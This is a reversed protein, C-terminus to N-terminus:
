EVTVTVTFPEQRGDNFIVLLTYTTTTQPCVQRADSARAPQGEFLITQANAVDWAIQACEGASITSPEAHFNAASPTPTPPIATPAQPTLSFPVRLIQGVTLRNPDALCNGTQLEELTLNFRNAIQTLSDGRQVEYTEAWDARLVCTASPPTSAAQISIPQPVTVPRDLLQVPASQLDASIPEPTSPPGSAELGDSGGLPVSVQAGPYVVQVVDGASIVGIGEITAIRMEAGQEATLYLTSGITVSAGNIEMTVQSGEPSQVLLASQPAEECGSEGIGTSMKFIRMDSTIGDINTNGIVLFTINQGPLTDPLNVQAKILAVGWVGQQQDLPSTTLSRINFLDIIDGTSEFTVEADPQLEVDVRSHGYCVQNRGTDACAPATQAIAREILADCTTTTNTPAAAAETPSVARPTAPSTEGGCATLTLAVLIILALSIPCQRM